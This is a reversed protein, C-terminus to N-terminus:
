FKYKEIEPILEYATMDIKTPVISIFGNALAWEDTDTANPEFNDFRGKIWFYPNGYTDIRREYGEVWNGKCQRAIKVGKIEGIPCNVNLCYGYTLPNQLVHETIKLIYPEFFNFDADPLHDTLSFGISPIGNECGELVAGMTGSYIVNVAANSGHNIGSVLLDPKREGFLESLALKVCDTPTGDCTYSKIGAREEIKKYRIPQTITIANSQASRSGDPAMVVVDGFQMMLRTLVEIGKSTNGDDNTILILPKITM